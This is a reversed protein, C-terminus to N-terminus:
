SRVKRPIFKYSISDVGWAAGGAGSIKLQVSRALGLNGSHAYGSGSQAAGWTMQGWGPYPDVEVGTLRWFGAAGVAPVVVTALRKVSGSDWDQFGQVTLSTATSVQKVILDPRRWMKLNSIGGADQWRTVYYSSYNALTGTQNDQVSGDVDVQLVYPETPHCALSLRQGSALTFDAGAAVGAVGGALQFKVWSGGNGLTPDLVLSFNATTTSVAPLSVWVRRNLVAVHANAISADTIQGSQIMPRMSAFLDTFGQGDFGFLGDPWCFFYVMGETVAVTQPSVTGLKGTLQVKSWTDNDFGYIAHVSRKKFVLLTEGFSVLATIGSGGEPIDIYDASRWSEPFLPHSWRVRDPFATADENTSAVWMRSQHTACHDAKPMHVGTPAAFSEQWQAAGSATLATAAAGSWKQSVSGSGTAIYVFRTSGSWAAFSAGHAATTAITTSAFTSSAAWFVLSNAAVLVQPTTQEWVWLRKPTFAGAGIAGVAATNYRQIGRRMMFGGRPDIDVNLLDPSENGGLQFADARLNLGGTFDDTREVQLRGAM